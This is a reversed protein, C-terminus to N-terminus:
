CKIAKIKLTVPAAVAAAEIPLLQPAYGGCKVLRSLEDLERRVKSASLRLRSAIEEVTMGRDALEIISLQTRTPGEM